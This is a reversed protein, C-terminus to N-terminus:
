EEEDGWVKELYQDRGCNARYFHYRLPNKEYYDQHYEEAPWFKGAPVIETVIQGQFPGQKEMREKSAEALRKQEEGHYFIATRYQTGVDCFQRNPTTPNIQHWFIDLLKQYSVKDPDFLVQVSEAHGTGGASVQEYTPHDTHGGTYGVTTAIVGDIDDFPHEMCWFCGGAFTAVQQDGTPEPLKAMKHAEEDSFPNWASATTALAALLAVTAFARKLIM